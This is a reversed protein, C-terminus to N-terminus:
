NELFESKRVYISKLEMVEATCVGIAIQKKLILRIAKSISKPREFLPVWEPNNSDIMVAESTLQKFFRNLEDPHVLNVGFGDRSPGHVLKLWGQKIMYLVFPKSVKLCKSIDPVRYYSQIENLRILLKQKNFVMTHVGESLEIIEYPIVGAKAWRVTKHRDSGLIKTAEAISILQHNTQAQVIYKRYTGRREGLSQVFSRCFSQNNQLLIVFEKRKFVGERIFPQFFDFFVKQVDTKPELLLKSCLYSLYPRTDEDHKVETSDNELQALCEKATESELISMLAHHMLFYTPADFIQDDGGSVTAHPEFLLRQILEQHEIMGPKPKPILADTYVWGCSCHNNLLGSISVPMECRECNEILQCDHELCCCVDQIDWKKRHYHDYTLCLPCYKTRNLLYFKGVRGKTDSGVYVNDYQNLLLENLDGGCKKIVESVSHYTKGSKNLHNISLHYSFPELNFVYPIHDMHNAKLTRHVFSFTSENEKVTLIKRFM